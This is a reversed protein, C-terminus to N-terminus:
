KGFQESCYDIQEHNCDARDNGKLESCEEDILTSICQGLNKFLELNMTAVDGNQLGIEVGDLYSDVFTPANYGAIIDIFLIKEDGYSPALDVLSLNGCQSVGYCLYANAVKDYIDNVLLNTDTSSQHWDNDPNLPRSFNFRYGYWKIDSETYIKIQWDIKSLDMNKTYYSIYALDGVTVDRLRFIDKPSMRFATYLRPGNDLDSWFCSNGFDDPSPEFVGLPPPKDPDYGFKENGQGNAFAPGDALDSPTVTYSFNMAQASAGIALIGVILACITLGRKMMM